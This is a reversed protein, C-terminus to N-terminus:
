PCPLLVISFRSDFSCCISQPAYRNLTHTKPNLATSRNFISRNLFSCNLSNRRLSKAIVSEISFRLRDFFFIRHGILLRGFSLLLQAQSARQAKSGMAMAMVAM